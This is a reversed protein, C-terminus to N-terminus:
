LLKTQGTMRANLSLAADCEWDSLTRDTSWSNMPTTSEITLPPEERNPAYTHQDRTGSQPPDNVLTLPLVDYM